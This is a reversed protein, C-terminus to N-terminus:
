RSPFALKLFSLLQPPSINIPGCFLL